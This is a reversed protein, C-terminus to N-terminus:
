KVTLVIKLMTKVQHGQSDILYMKAESWKSQYQRSVENLTRITLSRSRELTLVYNIYVSSM